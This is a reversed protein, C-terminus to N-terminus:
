VKLTRVADIDEHYAAAGTRGDSLQSGDTYTRHINPHAPPPCTTSCLKKWGNDLHMTTHSNPETAEFSDNPTDTFSAKNIRSPKM